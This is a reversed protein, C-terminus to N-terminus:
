GRARRRLGLLLAAMLPLWAAATTAGAGAVACGGMEVPAPEMTGPGGPPAVDTDLYVTVDRARAGRVTGSAVVLLRQGPMVELDLGAPPVAIAPGPQM